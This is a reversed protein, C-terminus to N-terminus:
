QANSKRKTYYRLYQTLILQKATLNLISCQILLQKFLVKTVVIFLFFFEVVFSVIV